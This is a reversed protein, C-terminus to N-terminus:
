KMGKHVFGNSVPVPDMFPRYPSWVIVNTNAFRSNSFHFGTLPFSPYLFHLSTFNLSTLQQYSYCLSTFHLTSLIFSFLSTFHLTSLILSFLTLHLSTFPQYSLHFFTLHLSTFTQYSLHFFNLTFHLSTFPQFSLHFFHFSNFHLSTFQLSPNIPNTLFLSTFQFPLLYKLASFDNM